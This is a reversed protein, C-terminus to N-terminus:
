GSTDAFELLEGDWSPDNDHIFSYYTGHGYDRDFCIRQYERCDLPQQNGVVGSLGKNYEDGCVPCTDPLDSM